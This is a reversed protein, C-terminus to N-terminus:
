NMITCIFEVQIGCKPCLSLYGARGCLKQWTWEPSKFNIWYLNESQTECKPCSKHNAFQKEDIKQEICAMVDDFPFINNYTTDPIFLASNTAIENIIQTNVTRSNCACIILLVAGVTILINKKM